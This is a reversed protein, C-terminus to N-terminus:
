LGRQWGRFNTAATPGLVDRLEGTITRVDSLSLGQVAAKV